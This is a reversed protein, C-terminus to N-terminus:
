LNLSYKKKLNNLLFYFIISSIHISKHTIIDEVMQYMTM